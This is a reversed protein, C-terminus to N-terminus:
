RCRMRGAVLAVAGQEPSSFVLVADGERVAQGTGDRRTVAIARAVRTRLDGEPSGSIHSGLFTAAAEMRVADAETGDPPLLLGAEETLGGEDKTFFQVRTAKSNYMTGRPTENDFAWEGAGFQQMRAGFSGRLATTTEPMPVLTCAAHATGSAFTVLVLALVSRM